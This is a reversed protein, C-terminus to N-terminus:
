RNAPKFYDVITKDSLAVIPQCAAKMDIMSENSKFLCKSVDTKAVLYYLKVLDQYVRYQKENIRTQGTDPHKEVMSGLAVRILEQIEYLRIWTQIEPDTNHNRLHDLIMAETWDPLPPENNIPNNNIENQLKKYESAVHKVLAVPDCRAISERIMKILDTIREFGITTKDREGVYVCGFCQSKDPSPVLLEDEEYNRSELGCQDWEVKARKAPPEEATEADGDVIEDFAFAQM